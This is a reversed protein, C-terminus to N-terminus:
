LNKHGVVVMTEADQDYTGGGLDGYVVVDAFGCEGMLDVIEKASYPRLDFRLERQGDGDGDVVVYRTELRQWSDVIKREEILLVGDQERCDREKLDRALIEKGMMELLFNGGRKLSTFVNQLCERDDDPDEHLGFSTFLNVILDFENVRLFDTMAACEFEASLGEQGAQEAAREIYLGCGDVGTVGYGRRAFELAHLGIGCCLDLIRAPSEVGALDLIGDVNASIGDIREPSFLFPALLGWFEEDKPYLTL